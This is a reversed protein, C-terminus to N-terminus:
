YSPHCTFTMCRWVKLAKEFGFGLFGNRLLLLLPPPFFVFVFYSIYSSLVQWLPFSSFTFYPAEYM